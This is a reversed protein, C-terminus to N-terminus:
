IKWFRADVQDAISVFRLGETSVFAAHGGIIVGVCDGDGGDRIILDGRGVLSADVRSFGNRTLADEALAALGGAATIHRHAELATSYTGRLEAAPDKGTALAVWDAAFLCCDNVGWEFPRSRRAEIFGALLDPWNPYRSM